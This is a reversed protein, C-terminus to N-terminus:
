KVRTIRARARVALGYAPFLVFGEGNPERYVRGPQVAESEEEAAFITYDSAGSELVTGDAGIPIIDAYVTRIPTGGTNKWDILVMQAAEGMATTFPVVRARVVEASQTSTGRSGANSSVKATPLSSTLMSRRVYGTDQEPVTVIRAFEGTDGAFVRLTEGKQLFGEIGRTTDPESYVNALESAYMWEMPAEPVVTQAETSEGSSTDDATCGGVFLLLIFSLRPNRM